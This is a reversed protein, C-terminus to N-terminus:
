YDVDASHWFHNIGVLQAGTDWNESSNCLSIANAGFLSSHHYVPAGLYIAEGSCAQGSTCQFKFFNGFHYSPNSLFENKQQHNMIFTVTFM